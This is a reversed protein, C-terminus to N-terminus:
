VNEASLYRHISIRYILDFFNVLFISSKRQFQSRKLMKEDEHLRRCFSPACTSRTLIVIVPRTQWCLFFTLNTMEWTYTLTVALFIRTKKTLACFRCCFLLSSVAVDVYLIKNSGNKLSWWIHLLRLSWIKLHLRNLNKKCLELNTLINRIWCDLRWDGAAFNNFWM